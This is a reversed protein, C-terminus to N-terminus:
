CDIGVGYDMQVSFPVDRFLPGRGIYDGARGVEMGGYRCLGPLVIVTWLRIRICASYGGVDEVKLSTVTLRESVGYYICSSM